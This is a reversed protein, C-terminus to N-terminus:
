VYTYSFIKRLIKNIYTFTYIYSIIKYLHTYLEYLNNNNIYYHISM